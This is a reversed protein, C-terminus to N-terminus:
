HRNWAIRGFKTLKLCSTLSQHNKGLLPTFLQFIRKQSPLAKPTPPVRLSRKRTGDGTARNTIPKFCLRPSAICFRLLLGLPLLFAKGRIDFLWHGFSPLLLLEVKCVTQFTDRYIKEEMSVYVSATSCPQFVSYLSEVGTWIQTYPQNFAFFMSYPAIWPFFPLSSSTTLRARPERRAAWWPFIVKGVSLM